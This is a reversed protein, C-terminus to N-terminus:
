VSRDDTWVELFIRLFTGVVIVNLAMSDTKTITKRRAKESALAEEISPPYQLPRFKELRAERLKGRAPAILIM